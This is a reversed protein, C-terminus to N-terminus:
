FCITITRISPRRADRGMQLIDIRSAGLHFRWPQTNHGNAALTAFRILDLMRPQEPLPARIAAVAADYDEMSGLRAMEVYTVAAGVAVAGGGILLDRRNM